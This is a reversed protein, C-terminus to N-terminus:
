VLEGTKADYTVKSDKFRRDIADRLHKLRQKEGKTGKTIKLLADLPASEGLAAEIKKLSGRGQVRIDFVAACVAIGM